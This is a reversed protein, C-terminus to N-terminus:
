LLSQLGVYPVFLFFLTCLSSMYLHQFRTIGVESEKMNGSHISLLTYFLTERYIVVPLFAQGARYKEFHLQLIIEEIEKKSILELLQM